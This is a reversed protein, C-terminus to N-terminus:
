EVVDKLLIKKGFGGRAARKEKRIRTLDDWTNGRAKVVAGMEELLDEFEELSKDLTRKYQETNSLEPYYKWMRQVFSM